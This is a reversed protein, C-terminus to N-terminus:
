PRPRGTLAAGYEKSDFRLEPVKPLPEHRWDDTLWDFNSHAADRWVMEDAQREIIVTIAGCYVDGCEPCVYVAVRGDINPPGALLLRQAAREDEDPVFWGLCSILDEDIQDYLSEGDVEYDLFRRPSRGPVGDLRRDRWALSFLATSSSAM